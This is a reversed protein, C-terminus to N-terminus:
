LVKIVVTNMLLLLPAFIYQALRNHSVFYPACQSFLCGPSLKM